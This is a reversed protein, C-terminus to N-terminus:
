WVPQSHVRFRYVCTYEPHGWNSLIRLEVLGYAENSSNSIEFTQIPEGDYDYTFEGLLKGGDKKNVKGYVAFDRPASGIHGKPSLVRPLHELTVHTICVYYPLSILLFGQHGKFGWCKGPSVEPQIATEPGNNNCWVSIGFVKCYKTKHTETSAIVAAGISELAYDAMGIGDARYRSLSRRILEEVDKQELRQQRIALKQFEEKQELSQNRITLKLFKIEELLDAQNRIYTAQTLYEAPQFLQKTVSMYCFWVGFGLLCLLLPLLVMKRVVLFCRSPPSAHQPSIESTVMPGQKELSPFDCMNFESILNHCAGGVRCKGKRKKFISIPTEKYCIQRITPVKPNYYGNALLRPSCHLMEKGQNAAKQNCQFM